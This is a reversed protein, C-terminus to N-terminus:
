QEANIKEGANVKWSMYTNTLTGNASKTFNSNAGNFQMVLVNSNNNSRTFTGGTQTFSGNVIIAQDANGNSQSAEVIGGEIILDGGITLTYDQNNALRFEKGSNGTSRIIFNGAIDTLTGGQNPNSNFDPMDIVLNGWTTPNPLKSSGSWNRLEVTSNAALIREDSGPFASSNDNHIYKSNDYAQLIDVTIKHDAQLTAGSEIIIKSNTGGLSWNATTTISHGAQIVFIDGQNFNSPTTGTGNRNAHWNSATNPNANNTSYYTNAHISLFFCLFTVLLLSLKM